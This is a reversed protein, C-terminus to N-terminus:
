LNFYVFGYNDQKTHTYFKTEWVLPLVCISSISFLTSLLVNPDLSSSTTPPHLLSCLPANWLKYTDGFSILTILHLFILYDSCAAHMPFIPFACLMKTPFSSLLLGSLLGICLHSYIFPIKPFYLPFTHIPHMQSLITVLPLGESCLFSGKPEMFPPIDQSASYSNAESSPSHEMYNTEHVEVQYIIEKV